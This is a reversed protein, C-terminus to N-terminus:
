SSDEMECYYDPPYVVYSNAGGGRTEKTILRSKRLNEIAQIAARRSCSADKALTESNPCASNVEGAYRTLAMYILKETSSLPLNFVDNVCIFYDCDYAMKVSGKENYDM